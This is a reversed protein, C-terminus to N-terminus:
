ALDVTNAVSVIVHAFTNWNLSSRISMAYLHLLQWYEEPWALDGQLLQM